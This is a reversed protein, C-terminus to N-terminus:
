TETEAETERSAEADLKFVLMTDQLQSAQANMEEATAALQESASANQQTVANLQAVAQNIQQMGTAQEESAANIEQVLDSTKAIAPVMQALLQGATETQKVTSSALDGIEKAAVQSREALKRVEAAVVAFGKGHEGARAAEIAANLALMNTQYAIDDIISIREAISQMAAVTQQVAAGGERAQSSAQQAMTDTLRANDANQKISATAQELTASTEEVSAAQESASQSLSQSTSSVQTSASSLNDAAARVATITATLKAVMTGLAHLLQGTEDRSSAAVRVSLDGDAVRQAVGVAQSLPGTISRTIWIGGLIAAIVFGLSILLNRRLGSVYRAQSAEYADHMQAKQSEILQEIEHRMKLVVPQALQTYITGAQPYLNQEMLAIAQQQVTRNKAILARIRTLGQEIQPDPPLAELAKFVEGTSRQNKKLHAQMDALNGGDRVPNLMARYLTATTDQFNDFFVNLLEVRRTQVQVIEGFEANIEKIQMQALVANLVIVGVMGILGITMRTRIRMNNFATM